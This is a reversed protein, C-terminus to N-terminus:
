WISFVDNLIELFVCCNFLHKQTKNTQKKKGKQRLLDIGNGSCSESALVHLVLDLDSSINCANPVYEEISEKTISPSFYQVLTAKKLGYQLTSFKYTPTPLWKMWYFYSM